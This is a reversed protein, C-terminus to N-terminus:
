PPLGEQFAIRKAYALGHRDFTPLDGESPSHAITNKWSKQSLNFRMPFSRSPTQTTQIRKLALSLM